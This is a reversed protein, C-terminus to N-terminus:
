RLPELSMRLTITDGPDRRTTTQYINGDYQYSVRYGTIEERERREYEVSCRQETIYYDGQTQRNRAIDNGVSAGLLAGAGAIVGQHGSGNGLAGGLTGGLVGGLLAPTASRRGREDVRVREDYCSEFPVRETVIRVVPQVDVVPAEILTGGPQAAASLPLAALAAALSVPIAFASLAPARRPSLLRPHHHQTNMSM